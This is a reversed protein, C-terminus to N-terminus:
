ADLRELAEDVLTMANQPKGDKDFFEDNKISEYAKLAFEILIDRKQEKDM